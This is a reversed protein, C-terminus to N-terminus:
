SVAAVPTSEQLVPVRQRHTAPIFPKIVSPREVAHLPAAQPRERRGNEAGRASACRRNRRAEDQHVLLDQLRGAVHGLERNVLHVHGTFGSPSAHHGSLERVLRGYQALVHELRGGLDRLQTLREATAIAEHANRERESRIPTM